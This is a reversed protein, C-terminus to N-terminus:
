EAPAPELVVVRYNGSNNLHKMFNQVDEVTISNLTDVAGNFTDVGNILSGTISNMWPRNLELQENANKVM